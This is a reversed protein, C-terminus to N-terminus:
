PRSRAASAAGDLMGLQWRLFMWQDAVERIRLELPKGQGHGADRDSWFLVPRQLPDSATAAQLRAAMKRAHLPHVRTDNEGATLLVAPYAVGEEVHHYPSYAHLFGFHDPDEASGYEPVWYRAMLFHQYRLMDLLPVASIVAGFLEPRQVLAAGTLLGGNSGGSIALRDPRTYGNDILWEAAAIFDDFVNQKNELMGARHWEAGYEGGGRINAVAYVGGDEYWPFLTASFTPVRPVNFGGYATLLTPRAGDLAIGKRHVLFMPVRTGDKSAFFVQTVQVNEPQVPVDPRAWLEREGTALDLRYISQPENYSSFTLFAETRDEATTVGATGIGPLEVPGLPTGDLAFRELRTSADQLYTAVLQGRAASLGRLVAEREPIIERWRERSPEHLDVAVVRGRPAGVTTHLYLTDGLVPGTSIAREGVVIEQRVLEGTRFWLDLDAVWLDLSDTGTWYGLIMWRADRSTYAFPGWTTALPGEREQEFLIPGQRHHTGLRHFRVQRSYPNEPDELRSYFFGDGSPLWDVSGARSPIEDALWTGSEVELVYLTTNEDGARYLGFAMLEGDHSPNIWQIAVLGDPDLQNADLLVRPEGEPGSQVYIVWQQQDGERRWTFYSNRRMQPARVEGVEMLERLRSELAARGPLADLVGRTHANQADTWASVRADLEPDPAELEPAASGELWRFPDVVEVGHFLERVPEAPSRPVLAPSPSATSAAFLSSVAIDSSGPAQSLPSHREHAQAVGAVSLALSLAVPFSLSLAPTLKWRPM